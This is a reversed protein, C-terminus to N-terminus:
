RLWRRQDGGGMGVPVPDPQEAVGEALNEVAAGLGAVGLLLYVLDDDSGTAHGDDEALVHVLRALGALGMLYGIFSSQEAFADSPDTLMM